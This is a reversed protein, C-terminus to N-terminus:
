KDEKLKILIWNKGPKDSDESAPSNAPASKPEDIDDAKKSPRKGYYAGSSRVLTYRGSLREGNLRFVLKNDDRSILEFSGSDWIEVTGAGYGSPIVGQFDIYGVPHDEVQVALRRISAEEPPGKPVAWSKLVGDLELRFDYHLHSAHHEQVVFRQSQASALEGKPEPSETFDRKRNYDELTM